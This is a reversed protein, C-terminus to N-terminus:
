GGLKRVLEALVHGREDLGYIIQRGQRRTTVVQAHRFLALEHSVAVKSLGTARIIEGASMEGADLLMIMAVRGPHGLLRAFGTMAGALGLREAHAQSPGNQKTM